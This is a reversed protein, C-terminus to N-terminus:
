RTSFTTTTVRPRAVSFDNKNMIIEDNLEIDMINLDKEINVRLRTRSRGPPRPEQSNIKCALKAWVEDPESNM